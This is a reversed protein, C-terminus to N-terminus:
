TLNKIAWLEDVLCYKTKWNQALNVVSTDSFFFISHVWCNLLFFNIQLQQIYKFNNRLNKINYISM